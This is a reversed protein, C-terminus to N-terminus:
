KLYTLLPAGEDHITIALIAAPRDASPNEIFVHTTGLPEHITQGVAYNAAPLRAHESRVTGELVYATVDGGHVHAPTFGRPPYRVLQVTIWKGPAGVLPESRLTTVVSRPRSAGDEASPSCLVNPWAVTGSRGGAVSALACFLGILVIFAATPPQGHAQKLSLATMRRARGRGELHVTTIM